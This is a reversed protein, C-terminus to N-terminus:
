VEPENCVTESRLTDIFKQSGIARRLTGIAKRHGDHGTAKDSLFYIDGHHLEITMNQSLHVEHYYWTFVLPMTAGLHLTASILKNKPNHFSSKGANPIDDYRDGDAELVLERYSFMKRITDAMSTLDNIRRLPVITSKKAKYDAKRDIDGFHLVSRGTLNAFAVKKQAKTDWSLDKLQWLLRDKDVGFARAAGRIVLVAADPIDPMVHIYPLSTNLVTLECIYGKAEFQKKVDKLEPMSFGAKVNKAEHFTIQIACEPGEM